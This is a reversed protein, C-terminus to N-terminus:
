SIGPVMEVRLNVQVALREHASEERVNMRRPRHLPISAAAVIMDCARRPPRQFTGHAAATESPVLTGTPVRADSPSSALVCAM